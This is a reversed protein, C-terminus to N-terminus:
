WWGKRKFVFAIGIGLVGMLLLAYGYGFPWHLEPMTEFNMGYLGAVFTMPIFIVSVLTLTKMIVNMHDSKLSMQLDFLGALSERFTDFASTVRSSAEVLDNFYFGSDENIYPFDSHGITKIVTEQAEGMLRWEHLKQKFDYINHGIENAFPAKFIQKEIKQVDEAIKDVTELCFGAAKEIIHYLIHGTHSMHDPHDLFSEEIEGLLGQSDELFTIVINGGVLINIKLLSYDKMLAFVSIYAHNKYVDVRPAQPITKMSREALPHVNMGAIAKSLDDQSSFNAWLIEENQPLRFKTEKSAEKTKNNYLIM